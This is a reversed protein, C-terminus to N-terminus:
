NRRLLREFYDLEEQPRSPDGLKRRLEEMIRRARQVASEDANPVRVNGNSLDRGRTPRGLPDDDASGSRGQKGQSQGEQQGEGEQGEAMQQMQKQMGEAGRKLGDLARGQADVADGNRGQGLSEEAERMAEEADSLGEEGQLGQQKMRNKLDQLQERLGQQRQGMNQGQQGGGQGQQGQGRQGQQGRGQQGQQGEQGEGQQGPQQGRQGQQGQQQGPQPRQRQGPRQQGQQGQQGEKYTEDRLDQQERSMKDLEDLQRNMEAMGGDSKQGNEANQLNELVNRLQELLRQAEATDGRQMAEQMDKIMKELDDPTVTQGNQQQQQRESQQRNQPKARQAFEKMFKDLAQKLDETLKKVEEDPANREIAEKLRDQAARLAKEADSLDGDEIKLAMEWLLDAVNTLDEDSKAARLRNAATTLGLFIGPQPTFREPAIRLADLATQVRARDADPATVLRRREEALARALPQSFPRAPLVIEATETRGEQGAEDRVVLTLKVRAGSWPNDTLDVLTKTDTEGTADAPLALAIKPVPVLSRGAKLPEVLGEAAAIGYDDKARYSLNFTGRGNVELDGVRSVEPPQDPITEIVLRQPESGSAAIGLEATGGALRFREERLTARTENAKAGNQVVGRPAPRGATDKEDKAVPVLAANPTLEAEGQGAIRVILTSNVPARLRQVSDKPTGSMTVILPPVRTYIPPDIWGDVRFSPAAAQPERWDFAAAVRGRWEPGAVFLAALAAVLVGARLALPDHGPMHPRPRGAKLRAVAAAARSQHLAWLARTVPDSQGVALTDEISSAPDHATGGKRAAERDIRALAERRSLARLRVAPWLAAVFLAAFLGLGVMRGVQSLDLWLGLWSAALFALVVGLGRWLVPWAREWLGAARAQAVLRDLRHRTAGQPDGGSSNTREAESM